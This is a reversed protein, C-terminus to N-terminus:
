LTPHLRLSKVANEHVRFSGTIEATPTVKTIAGSYCGVFAVGELGPHNSVRITNIPGQGLFLDRENLLEDGVRDFIHLRHDHAGCLVRDPARSYAVANMLMPGSAAVTTSIWDARGPTLSALRVLGDDSVVVVDGDDAAAVENFCPNGRPGADAGIEAECEGTEADWALVTGDFTGALIQRGDPTWNFSREWLGPRAELEVRRELSAADWVIIKQDYAASLIDGTLPSVAVKKIGSAHAAIEGVTRGTDIDFIRVVGDDCGLVARRHLPDIACTDTESEFPGWVQLQRGTEVDWVRLTMDDGSTFLRGDHYSISLVDKEHGELVNMIAGTRLDWVLVRWDRSVSAGIDDNVFVFDEVDDAHGRLVLDPRRQELDWTVITYDSSPSAARRGEADVVVRNVLHRHFGLLEVSGSTLNYLAVAGDYGSTVVEDTGPVAAACTVPGRHRVFRDTTIEVTVTGGGEVLLPDRVCEGRAPRIRRLRRRSSRRPLRRGPRRQRQQEFFRVRVPLSRSEAGRAGRGMGQVAAQARRRRPALQGLRLLLRQEVLDRREAGARHARGALRRWPPRRLPRVRPAGAPLAVLARRVGARRGVARARTGVRGRDCPRRDDGADGRGVPPLPRRSGAAEPLPRARVRSLRSRGVRRAAPAEGGSGQHQLRLLRRAHRRRLRAVRPAREAQLGLRRQVADLDAARVWAAADARRRVARPELPVRRPRREGGAAAGGRSLRRHASRDSSGRGPLAPNSRRRFAGCETRRALSVAGRACRGLGRRAGPPDRPAGAGGLTGRRGAPLRRRWGRRRRPLRAGPDMGVRLPRLTEPARRRALARPHHSRPEARPVM